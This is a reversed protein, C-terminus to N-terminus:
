RGGDFHFIRKRLTLFFLPTTPLVPSSTSCLSMILSALFPDSIPLQVLLQTPISKTLNLPTLKSGKQHSETDWSNLKMLLYYRNLNRHWLEMNGSHKSFSDFM